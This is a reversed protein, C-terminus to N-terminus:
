GVSLASPPQMASLLEDLAVVAFATYWDSTAYPLVLHNQYIMAGCSYVVNPVYGEREHPLPRLLPEPLRALIKTPDEKDLLLAGICYKRIAGVGHTIV